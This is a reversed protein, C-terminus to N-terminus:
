NLLELILVTFCDAYISAITEPQVESFSKEDHYKFLCM